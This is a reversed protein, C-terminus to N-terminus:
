QLRFLCIDGPEVTYASKPTTEALKKDIHKAASTFVIEMTMSKEYDKNVVALYKHGKNSFTTVVAGGNGVVKIRKVGSPTKARQTGSPIKILHGISTVTAGYFLKSVNKLEVNMQKVLLYTKTKRGNLEIPANHFDYSKDQPTKYTFYQIAQAGYVLNVYAQLRLTALTPQPYVSHPTCLVFGWFPRGTRLSEERIESLTYFWTDERLGEKTVPYFDFSIQPLSIQSAAQLYARYSQAAMDKLMEKGYYPLLNIYCGHGSDVRKITNVMNVYKSIDTAKPEDVLFYGALAPSNKLRAVASAPNNLLQQSYVYIKVGANNAVQLDNLATDITEYFNLSHTFGCDKMAAYEDVTLKQWIIAGYFSIIPMSDAAAIVINSASLFFLLASLAVARLYTKM